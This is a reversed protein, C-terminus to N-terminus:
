GCNNKGRFVGSLRFLAVAPLATPAYLPQRHCRLIDPQCTAPLDHQNKTLTDTQNSALFHFVHLFVSMRSSGSLPPFYNGRPIPPPWTGNTPSLSHIASGAHCSMPLPHWGSIPDSLHGLSPWSSSDPWLAKRTIRGIPGFPLRFMPRTQAACSKQFRM